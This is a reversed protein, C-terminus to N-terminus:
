WIPFVVSLENNGIDKIRAENTKKLKCYEVFAPPIRVYYSGSIDIVSTKLEM